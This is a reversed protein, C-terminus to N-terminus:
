QPFNVWNNDVFPVISKHFWTLGYWILNSKQYWVKTLFLQLFTHSLKTSFSSHKSKKSNQISSYSSSGFSTGDGPLFRHFSRSNVCTWGLRRWVWRCRASGRAWRSSKQLSSWGPGDGAREGWWGKWDKEGARGRRKVLRASGGWWSKWAEEGAKGIRRVLEEVGKWWGQRDEEGARGGRKVLRELRGWWSKWGEEGAKGIRRVLEEVGRWWGQRDEEGARGEGARECRRM